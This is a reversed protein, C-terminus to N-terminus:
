EVAHPGIVIVEEAEDARIKVLTKTLLPSSPFFVYVTRDTTTVPCRSHYSRSSLDKWVLPPHHTSQASAFIDIDPRGWIEFKRVLQRDLTCKIPNKVHRLLYDVPTNDVELHYLVQIQAEM